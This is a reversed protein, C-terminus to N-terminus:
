DSIPLGSSKRIVRLNVDYTTESGGFPIESVCLAWFKFLLSRYNNQFPILYSAM